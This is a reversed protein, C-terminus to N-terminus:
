SNARKLRNRNSNVLRSLYNHPANYCKVTNCTDEKVLEYQRTNVVKTSTHFFTTCHKSKYLKIAYNTCLQHRRDVMTQLGFFKLAEEYSVYKERLIIKLAIKQIRELTNIDEGTLGSNWIPVGHEALIRVEKIYYEIICEPELNLNAMRRLLWMKKMAKLFIVRTNAHWRLDATIEVGLLRVQEM